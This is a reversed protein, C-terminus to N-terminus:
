IKLHRIADAPPLIYSVYFQGFEAYLASAEDFRM